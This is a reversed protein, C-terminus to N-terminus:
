ITCPVSFVSRRWRELKPCQLLRLFWALLSKESAVPLSQPPRLRRTWWRRCEQTVSYRSFVIIFQTRRIAFDSSSWSWHSQSPMFSKWIFTQSILNTKPCQDFKFTVEQNLFLKKKISTVESKIPDKMQNMLISSKNPFENQLVISFETSPQMDHLNVIQNWRM